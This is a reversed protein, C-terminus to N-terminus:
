CDKETDILFMGHNETGAEHWEQLIRGGDHCVLLCPHGVILQYQGGDSYQEPVIDHRTSCRCCPVPSAAGLYLLPVKRTGPILVRYGWPRNM